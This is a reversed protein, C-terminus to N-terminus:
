QDVGADFVPVCRGESCNLGPMCTKNRYCDGWKFGDRYSCTAILIFMGVFIAIMFIAEFVKEM